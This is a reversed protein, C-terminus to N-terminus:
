RREVCSACGQKSQAGFLGQSFYNAVFFQSATKLLENIIRILKLIFEGDKADKSWSVM